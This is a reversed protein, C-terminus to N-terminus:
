ECGKVVAALSETYAPQHTNHWEQHLIQICFYLINKIILCFVCIISYSDGYVNYFFLGSVIGKSVLVCM